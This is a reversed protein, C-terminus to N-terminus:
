LIKTFDILMRSMIDNSVKEGIEVDFWEPIKTTVAQEETKFEIEAFIIGEYAGHFIDLEIKLNDIYPIIYRDKEITIRSSDKELLNYQEKTIEKEIEEVGFGKKGTKITYTYKTQNDKEIRRKRIATFIDSFIYDQVIVKKSDKFESILEEVKKNDRILFRREIEM